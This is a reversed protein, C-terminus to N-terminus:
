LKLKVDLDAGEALSKGSGFIRPELTLWLEDVLGDKLFSNAVAGGSVLLMQKFGREELHKVLERPSDIRFEMQGPIEFKKYKSPNKTLIVRLREKEPKLGAKDIKRVHDFTTSGMVILNNSMKTKQFFEFDEKSSWEYINKGKWKTFRGDLSSVNILIVKM